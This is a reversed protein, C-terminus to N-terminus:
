LEGGGGRVHGAAREGAALGARPKGLMEGLGERLELVERIVHKEAADIVDDIVAGCVGRVLGWPGAPTEVGGRLHVGAVGDPVIDGCEVSVDSAALGDELGACGVIIHKDVKGNVIVPAIRVAENLLEGYRTFPEFVHGNALEGMM